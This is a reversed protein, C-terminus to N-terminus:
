DVTATAGPDVRCLKGTDWSGKYVFYFVPISGPNTVRTGRASWILNRFAREYDCIEINTAYWVEKRGGAKALFAEIRDWNDNDDFEYAHGWLYFLRADLSFSEKEALFADLLPFLESEEHHCTPNLRLWNDPLSFGNTPRTTRGYAIGCAALARQAEDNVAGYAYAMGRCLGGFTEEVAVRDSLLEEVMQPFALTVLNKHMRGHVAIEAIDRYTEAFRLMESLRMKRHFPRDSPDPVDEPYYMGTNINFTGKVGYKRMLEALRYDEMRGDDYSMTFARIRGKPWRLRIIM